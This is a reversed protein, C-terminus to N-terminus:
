ILMLVNNPTKVYLVSILKLISNLLKLGFVLLLMLLSYQKAASPLIGCHTHSYLHVYIFMKSLRM